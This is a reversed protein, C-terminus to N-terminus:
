DIVKGNYEGGTKEVNGALLATAADAAVPLIRNIHKKDDGEFLSLVWDAMDHFVPAGVGIKVRPVANTGCEEFISRLGNHGGDSGSKRIRIRGLPLAVDDSVVIVREPPLKYFKIAASVSQGSLNMYTQPKMLMVRVGDIRGIGTLAKFRSRDAKIFHRSSLEDIVRFGVNHRTGSYKPGPNGLGVILYDVPGQRNKFFM